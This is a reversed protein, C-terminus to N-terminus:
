YKQAQTEQKARDIRKANQTRTKRRTSLACGNDRPRLLVTRHNRITPKPVLHVFPASTHPFSLSPTLSFFLKLFSFFIGEAFIKDAGRYHHCSSNTGIEIKLLIKKM